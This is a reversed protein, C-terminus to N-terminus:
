LKNENKWYFEGMDDLAKQTWRHFICGAPTLTIEGFWIKEGNSYLDIRVLDMEASLNEAVSIMEKLNHPKKLLLPAADKSYNYLPEWICSYPLYSAHGKERNNCALICFVKGKICMFKYDIPFGGTGDDIYSECVIKPTILNYHREANSYKKKTMWSRMKEVNGKIDFKSKDTCIINMGAGYNAKLAFREPLSSFEIDDPSEYVGLLPPLLSSFGKGEIYDRVLYKDALYYYDNIEGSLIKKIWLESLDNPKKFNPLKGRNHFYALTFFLRPSLKSLLRALIHKM